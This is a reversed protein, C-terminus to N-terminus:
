EDERVGKINNTPLTRAGLKSKALRLVDKSVEEAWGENPNSSSRNTWPDETYEFYETDVIIEFGGNPLDRAYINRKQYGTDVPTAAIYRALAERKLDKMINDFNNENM